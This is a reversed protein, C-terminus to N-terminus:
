TIVEILEFDGSFELLDHPVVSYVPMKLAKVNFRCKKGLRFTGSTLAVGDQAIIPRHVSVTVNPGTTSAVDSTIQYPYRYTSTNGLPQIYDGKKLMDGSGTAGSFNIYLDNGSYGVMTLGGGTDPSAISGKVETLYSLGSNTDGFDVNAEALRDMTDLDELLGRNDSYKLGQPAGVTFTYLAPSRESTKYLGSRSISEGVVKRKNITLYTTKDIVTQMGM